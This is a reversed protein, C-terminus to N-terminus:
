SHWPGPSRLEPCLLYDLAPQTEGSDLRFGPPIFSPCCQGYNATNTKAHWVSASRNTSRKWLLSGTRIITFLDMRIHVSSTKGVLIVGFTWNFSECLPHLPQCEM